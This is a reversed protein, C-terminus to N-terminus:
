RNLVENRIILSLPFYPFHFNQRDNQLNKLELLELLAELLVELEQNEIVHDWFGSQPDAQVM